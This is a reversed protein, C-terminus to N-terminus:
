DMVIRYSEFDVQELLGYCHFGEAVENMEAITKKIGAVTDKIRYMTITGDIKTAFVGKNDKCVAFIACYDCDHDALLMGMFDCLEEESKIIPNAYHGCGCPCVPAQLFNNAKDLGCSAFTLKPNVKIKRKKM